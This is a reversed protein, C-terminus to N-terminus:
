RRGRVDGQAGVSRGAEVTLPSENDESSPDERYLPTPEGEAKRQVKEPGSRGGDWLGGTTRADPVPRKRM